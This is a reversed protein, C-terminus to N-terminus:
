RRLWDAASSVNIGRSTYSDSVRAVVWRQENPIGLTDGILRLHSAFRDHYTQGSKIEILEPHNRNTFDLLDVEVKNEDRYFYLEPEDGDNIHRKLTEAVILNEFVAGLKPHTLLEEITRINLLHCLLGTDHFYFKPVRTVRKRTNTFFPRLQFTVYSSELMGMWAKVTKANAGVTSAIETTNILNGASDACIELFRRFDGLNRVDLYGAIDREVYTKLYASFFVKPPIHNM